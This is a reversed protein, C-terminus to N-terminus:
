WWWWWFYFAVLFYYVVYMTGHTHTQTYQTFFSKVLKGFLDCRSKFRSSSKFTSDKLWMLLTKKHSFRCKNKITTTPTPHLFHCSLSHTFLHICPSPFLFNHWGIRCFSDSNQFIKTYYFCNLVFLFSFLKFFLGFSFCFLLFFLLLFVSLISIFQIKFFVLLNHFLCRICCLLLYKLTSYCFEIRPFSFLIVHFFWFYSFYLSTISYLFINVAFSFFDSLLSWLSYFDLCDLFLLLFLYTPFGPSFLLLLYFHHLLFFASFHFFFSFCCLFCLVFSLVFFISLVFVFIAPLVLPNLFFTVFLPM